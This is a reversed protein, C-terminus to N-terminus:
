QCPSDPESVRSAGGRPVRPTAGSAASAQRECITGRRAAPDVQRPESVARWSLRAGGRSGRRGAALSERCKRERRDRAGCPELQRCCGTRRTGLTRYANPLRHNRQNVLPDCVPISALALCDMAQQGSGLGHGERLADCGADECRGRQRTLPFKGSPPSTYQGM